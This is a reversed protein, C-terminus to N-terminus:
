TATDPLMQATRLGGVVLSQHLIWISWCYIVHLFSAKGRPSVFCHCVPTCVLFPNTASSPYKGSLIVGRQPSYTTWLRGTIHKTPQNVQNSSEGTSSTQQLVWPIVDWLVCSGLSEPWAAFLGFFPTQSGTFCVDHSITISWPCHRCSCSTLVSTLSCRLSRTWYLFSM